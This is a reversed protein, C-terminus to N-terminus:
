VTSEKKKVAKAGRNNTGTEIRKTLKKQHDIKELSEFSKELGFCNKENQKKQDNFRMRRQQKGKKRNNNHPENSSTLMKQRSFNHITKRNHM